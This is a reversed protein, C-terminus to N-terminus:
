PQEQFDSNSIDDPDVGLIQCLAPWIPELCPTCYDKRFRQSVCQNDNLMLVLENAFEPEDWEPHIIKGCKTCTYTVQYSTVEIMEGLKAVQRM